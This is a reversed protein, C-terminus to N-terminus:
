KPSVFTFKKSAEYVPDWTLAFNTYDQDTLLCLRFTHKHVKARYKINYKEAWCKIDHQIFALCYEAAQGFSGRPLQFEVYM